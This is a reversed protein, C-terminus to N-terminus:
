RLLVLRSVSTLEGQKLSVFYVGSSLNEGIFQRIYEGPECYSDMIVTVEAGQENYVSLRVTGAKLINFSINASSNFPNPYSHHLGFNDAVVGVGEGGPIASITEPYFEETGNIDVDSIRYYYTFGNIVQNDAYFYEHESVTTGNGEIQAILRFGGDPMESKYLNFHDNDLESATVWHLTVKSDGGTASFLTMEVPLPFDEIHPYHYGLDIIGLDYGQNTCTTGSNPPVLGDGANVCPSTIGQGGEPQSLYYDGDPGTVFLPDLFINSFVDCSDGNANVTVITGLWQPISNGQFNGGENNNFDCYTLSASPSNYIHIGGNGSNGEVITNIISSNSNEYCRIGGGDELASNDSITCNIIIPSSNSCCIGGGDDSAMNGSVICDIIEPSSIQFCYIGGGDISASNGSITCNNIEPNSNEFCLIGGGWGDHYASGASNGNITCNTIIPSSYEQCYIGGGGYEDSICEAWNSSITCNSITPSSSYCCIGGGKLGASNGSITCNSITPSSYSCYIGSASSGTILSYELRSSDNSSAFSIGGWALSLYNTFKISDTETGAAHIYGYINFSVGEDFIFEAGAEINLSDGSQVSIYGIVFYTTGSLIGSLEGSIEIGTSLTVEPLTAASFFLRDLVQDGLYGQQTYYVDYAGAALDIEYYGSGETYTSDTVAGPSDATFLVKTGEHAAQNELYCYGDVQVAYVCVSAIIIILFSALLKM